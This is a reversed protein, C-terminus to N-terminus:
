ISEESPQVYLRSYEHEEFEKCYKEEYPYLEVGLYGNNQKALKEIEGETHDAWFDRMALAASLEKHTHLEGFEDQLEMLSEFESWKISLHGDEDDIIDILGQAKASALIKEVVKSWVRAKTAIQPDDIHDGMYEVMSGACCVMRILNKTESETLEFKM